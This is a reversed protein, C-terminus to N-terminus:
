GGRQKIIYRQWDGRAKLIAEGVERVAGRGGNAHTIWHAADKLEPAADAVAICLGVQSFAGLDPIDDGVFACREPDIDLTKCMALVGARKDHCQGVFAQVGLEKMRQEAVDSPRGSLVGVKFGNRCLLAIAVGDKVNFRLMRKGDEDYILDGPTVVGDCDLIIGTLDALQSKSPEPM